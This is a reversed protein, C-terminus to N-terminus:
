KRILEKGAILFDEVEKDNQGESYIRVLPETESARMLLWRQSGEMHFKIGNIIGRSSLFSQKETINIGAIKDPSKEFLKPLLDIRDNNNYEFDIRNYHIFGFEKRKKDVYESLKKCGSSSLMEILFLASLIGDREPIHKGYGYGGSEEAGFAIKTELMKECIYKFGVQVDVVNREKSKFHTSLIDTVSSTKVLHGEFNKKNTIFDALLLITEQASLWQGNNLVVGLRDADGDTAVGLSYCDENRLIDMMESLNKEIPEASRGSFDTKAEGYITSAECDFNGLIDQLITQGAGGMSDILINLESNAIAEFDVLKRLQKIYPPILDQRSINAKSKVIKSKGIMEEVKHTEETLFPGGYFGKFKIGNYEAPNHSATIMVGASLEKNKVTFSLVPTPIIKDSLIVQINNGSLVESFVNAFENSKRRGDFAIAVKPYKFEDNCYDAFAQAAVAVSEENIESELLGRWGDTGFIINM